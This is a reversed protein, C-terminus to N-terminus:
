SEARLEVRELAGVISVLAALFGERREVPLARLVRADVRRGLPEMTDLLERGEGTLRLVYARIDTRSRRRQVYGRKVLRRVIDATTSRDIGTREVLGTQSLGEHAAITLLVALQRPTV